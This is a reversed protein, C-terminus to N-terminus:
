MSWEEIDAENMRVYDMNGAERALELSQKASAVAEEKRGLKAEILAQRRLQWYKPAGANMENAQKIWTYAQELDKGSEYYYTAASYYDGATPGALTREISAM